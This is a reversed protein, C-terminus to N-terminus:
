ALTHEIIQRTLIGVRYRGSANPRCSRVQGLVTHDKLRLEVISGTKVLVDVEVQLGSRSVDVVPATLELEPLDIFTLEGMGASAIRPETRRDIGAHQRDTLVNHDYM